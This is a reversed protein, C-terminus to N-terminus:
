RLQGILVQARHSLAARAGDSVSRKSAKELQWAFSELAAVAGRASGAQEWQVQAVLLPVSLLIGTM